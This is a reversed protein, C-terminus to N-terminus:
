HNKSVSTRDRVTEFNDCIIAWINSVKRKQAGKPLPSLPGGETVGSNLETM